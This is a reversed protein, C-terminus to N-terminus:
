SAARRRCLNVVSVFGDLSDVVFVRVGQEAAKEIFAVQGVTLCGHGEGKVHARKTEIWVTKGNCLVALDPLGITSGSGKARKQGIEVLMVNMAKAAVRCEAVLDRELTM